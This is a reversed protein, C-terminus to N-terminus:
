EAKAKCPAEPVMELGSLQMDLVNGGAREVVEGTVGNEFEVAEVVHSAEGGETAERPFFRTTMRFSRLGELDKPLNDGPDNPAITTTAALPARSGDEEVGSFVHGTVLPTRGSLAASLTAVDYDDPFTVTGEYTSRVPPAGTDTVVVDIADGSRTATGHVERVVKGDVEDSDGFELSRGDAAEFSMRSQVNERGDPSTVTVAETAYGSCANGLLSYDLTGVHKGEVTLIDYHARHPALTPAALSSTALCALAPLVALIATRM